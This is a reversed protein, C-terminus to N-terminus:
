EGLRRGNQMQEGYTRAAEEQLRALLMSNGKKLNQMLLTSLRVYEQLGSRKGFHEYAAGESVGAKLERCTYLMEEYAPQMQKEARGKKDYEGAIKQFAGRVTMGAGLYLVLRYVIDPYEKQMQRKRSETKEHLDRDAMFYVSVATIVATIWLPFGYDKKVQKWKLSNGRWNDPLKWEAELRSKQEAALLLEEMEQYAMEGASLLPPIVYIEIKEEWERDAYTVAATLVVGTEEECSYLNGFSSLIDPRDTSWEVVFPYGEYEEMLILDESVQELSSNDGLVLSPLEQAFTEYLEQSENESLQRPAVQIKFIKEQGM